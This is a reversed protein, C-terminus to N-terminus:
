APVGLNRWTRENPLVHMAFIAIGNAKSNNGISLNASSRARPLTLLFDWAFGRGVVLFGLSLGGEKNRWQQKLLVRIAYTGIRIYAYVNTYTFHIGTHKYTRTYGCM